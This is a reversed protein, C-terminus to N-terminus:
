FPPRMLIWSNGLTVMMAVTNRPTTPPSSSCCETDPDYSHRSLTCNVKALKAKKSLSATVNKLHSLYKRSTVGDRLLEADTVQRKSETIVLSKDEELRRLLEEVRDPFDFVNGEPLGRVDNNHTMAHHSVFVGIQHELALKEM